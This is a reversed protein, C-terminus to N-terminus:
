EYDKVQPAELEKTMQEGVRLLVFLYHLSFILMVVFM